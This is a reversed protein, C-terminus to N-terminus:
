LEKTNVVKRDVKVKNWKTGSFLSSLNFVQQTKKEKQGLDEEM